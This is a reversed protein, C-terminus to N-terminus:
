NKLFPPIDLEWPLGKAKKDKGEDKEEGQTEDESKNEKDGFETAIM